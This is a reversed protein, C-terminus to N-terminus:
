EPSSSEAQEQKQKELQEQKHLEWKRDAQRSENVRKERRRVGLASLWRLLSFGVFMGLYGWSWLDGLSRPLAPDVMTNSSYFNTLVNRSFISLYTEGSGIMLYHGEVSPSFVFDLVWFGHDFLPGDVSTLKQKFSDSYLSYTFAHNSFSTYADQEEIIWWYLHDTTRVLAIPSRTFPNQETWVLTPISSDHTSYRYIGDGFTVYVGDGEVVMSGQVSRTPPLAHAPQPLTQTTDAGYRVVSLVNQNGGLIYIDGTQPDRAYSDLSGMTPVDDAWTIPNILDGTHANIRCGARKGAEQPYDVDGYIIGQVLTLSAGDSDVYMQSALGCEDPLEFISEFAVSSGGPTVQYAAVRGGDQFLAYLMDGQESVAMTILWEAGIESGFSDITSRLEHTKVDIIRLTGRQNDSVSYYVGYKTNVLNPDITASTDGLTYTVAGHSPGYTGGDPFEHTVWCTLLPTLFFILSALGDITCIAIWLRGVWWVYTGQKKSPM